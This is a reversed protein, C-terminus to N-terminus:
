IQSANSQRESKKFATKNVTKWPETIVTRENCPSNVNVFNISNTKTFCLCIIIYLCNYKFIEKVTVILSVTRNKEDYNMVLLIDWIRSIESVCYTDEEYRGQM